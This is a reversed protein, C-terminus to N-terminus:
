ARGGRNTAAVFAVSWLLTAAAWPRSVSAVTRRRDARTHRPPSVLAMHGHRAARRGCVPIPPFFQACSGHDRCGRGAWVQALAPRAVLFRFLLGWGTSLVLAAHFQAGQACALLDILGYFFFGWFL